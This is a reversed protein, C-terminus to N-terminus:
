HTSEKATSTQQQWNFGFPLWFLALERRSGDERYNLLGKLIQVELFKAASRQRYLPFLEWGSTDTGREHWYLNWFLSLSSEGRDNWQQVYLRWLPAWLREIGEKDLIPEVLAPLTLNYEGDTNSTYLFLPWLATRRREKGDQAWSELRDTFLFFLVKNRVQRYHPSQMTDNRYLPWMYWYKSSSGVHEESYFPLFSSINRKKGTVTLWFPWLYDREMEENKRDDAYGFFPWLWTRSTVLPTDYSAYLPFLNLRRSPEATELGRVERSFFPWLIFSSSYSGDKAAQGYLPWIRFGSENDGRTVSFFPWLFNYNTTGKNVTRGYLPFLVYHYEDRWFREYIDGYLPFLSLYPGYQKSEGSIILPFLMFQRETEGQEAKRYINRQLLQLFEIRTVDPTTEFSALPYLIYTYNRSDQRDEATHFLPRLSTAKDEATREFNLLPGLISLKSSKKAASERYDLLPWITIMTEQAPSGTETAAFAGPVALLSIHVAVLLALIWRKVHNDQLLM